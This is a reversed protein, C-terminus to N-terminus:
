ECLYEFHVKQIAIYSDKAWLYSGTTYSNFSAYYQNTDSDWEEFYVDVYSTKTGSANSDYVLFTVYSSTEDFALSDYFDYTVYVDFGSNNQTLEGAVMGNVIKTQMTGYQLDFCSGFYDTPTYPLSNLNDTNGGNRGTLTFAYYESDYVSGKSGTANTGSISTDFIHTYSYEEIGAVAKFSGGKGGLTIACVASVAAVTTTLALLIVKKKKM